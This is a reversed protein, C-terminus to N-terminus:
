VHADTQVIEDLIRPALTQLARRSLEIPDGGSAM